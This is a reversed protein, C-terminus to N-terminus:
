GVQHLWRVPAGSGAYRFPELEEDWAEGLAISLQQRLLAPDGQSQEIAARIRNEPVVVNGAVDTQAHFIGLSPTHSWRGGDTTASADETVEYRLHEWGRLASALQVGTGAKGVWSFETRYTGEQAPQPTWDMSVKSGLIDSVIWEVHPCLARPASHVFLVGRSFTGTM